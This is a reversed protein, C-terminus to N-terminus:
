AVGQVSDAEDPAPWLVLLMYRWSILFFGVPLIIQLWWAPYNGLLVSGFEAEMSVFRASVVALFACAVSTCGHVVRRLRQQWLPSLLKLLLDMRIHNDVRSAIMSGLMTLWLVLIRLLEDTWIFSSGWVNRQVIQVAALVVMVGLVLALLFDETRSFWRGLTIILRQLRM